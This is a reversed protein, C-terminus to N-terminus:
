ARDNYRLNEIQQIASKCDALCLGDLPWRNPLASGFAMRRYLLNGIQAVESRPLFLTLICGLGMEAPSFAQWRLSNTRVLVASVASHVPKM